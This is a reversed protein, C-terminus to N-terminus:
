VVLELNVGLLIEGGGTTLFSQPSKEGFRCCVTLDHPFFLKEKTILQLCSQIRVKTKENTCSTIM